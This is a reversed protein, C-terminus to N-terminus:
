LLFKRLESLPCRVAFQFYFAMQPVSFTRSNEVRRGSCDDEAPITTRVILRQIRVGFQVACKERCIQNTHKMGM